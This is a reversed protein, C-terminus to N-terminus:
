ADTGGSLYTRMQANVFHSLSMELTSVQGNLTISLRVLNPPVLTDQGSYFGFWEPAGGRSLLNNEVWLDYSRWGYFEFTVDNIDTLIVIKNNYQGINRETVVPVENIVSERYVLDLLNNANEEVKLEYFAMKEQAFVSHNTFGRVVSKGGEFYHYAGREGGKMIYPHTNKIVQHVINLGKIDAFKQEFTGAGDAWYKAFLSYGYSGLFLVLLLITSAILVEVLSFGRSKAIAAHNLKM